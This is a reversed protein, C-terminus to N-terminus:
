DNILKILLVDRLVGLLKAADSFAHTSVYVVDNNRLEVKQALFLGAPETLNFRYVTPVPELGEHGELKVGMADLTKFEERRFVVVTAPEALEGNLGGAKAIADAVTVEEAEFAIRSNTQTAGLVNYYREDKKVAILDSPQVYVNNDSQTLLTSLRATASKTGRQLTVLTNYDNNKPGGAISLADLIRVGGQELNFRGPTNVDGMVSFMNSTRKVMTVIVQPEIAKNMLRQQIENQVDVLRRGQAKIFGSNNDKGAYPVSIRGSHDIEQDPLTVYNGGTSAGGSPVFLGGSGAEFITIRLTDGAGLMVDVPPSRDTFAGKFYSDDETVALSEVVNRDVNVLVFPFGEQGAAAGSDSVYEWRAKGFTEASPGSSPLDCGALVSVSFIACVVQRFCLAWSLFSRQFYTKNRTMALM